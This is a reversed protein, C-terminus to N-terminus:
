RTVSPKTLLQTSSARITKITESGTDMLFPFTIGRQRSFAALTEVSDYSIAALGLDKRGSNRSGDKCSSWNRRATPDGTPRVFSYWCQARQGWSRNCPGFAERKSRELSFETSTRRGAPGLKSVDIRAPSQAMAGTETILATLLVVALPLAPRQPFGM